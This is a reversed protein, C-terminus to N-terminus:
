KILILKQKKEIEGFENILFYIGSSYKSADWSLIQDGCSHISFLIEDIKNGNLDVVEFKKNDFLNTNSTIQFYVNSNFPNPYVNKIEIEKRISYEGINLCNQFGWYTICSFNFENCLNNNSVNVISSAPLNCLNEHLFEIQNNAINLEVMNQNSELGLPISKIQTDNIFVYKLSRLNGFSNPISDLNNSNISFTELNTLNGIFTPLEIIPNNILNIEELNVMNTISEDLFFIQNNSLDLKRLFALEQFDNTLGTILRYSLDLNILRGERWTQNFEYFPSDLNLNNFNNINALVLLDQEFFCYNSDLIQTNEDLINHYVYGDDCIDCSDLNQSEINSLSLCDPYPPCISNDIFSVYNLNEYIACIDNPLSELQNNGLNLIELFEFDSIYEIFEELNNDFINIYRLNILNSFNAPLFSLENGISEFEELSELNGFNEPLSILNNNSIRLVKLSELNGFSEPLTTIQNNYIWISKLQSLNGISSPLEQLQCTHIYFRELNELEGISEPVFRIPNSSLYLNELRSMYAISNPITDINSNYLNLYRLRGEEWNQSGIELPGYEYLNSNLDIFDQLVDIDNTNFCSNNDETLVNEPIIEIFTQWNECEQTLILSHLILLLSFYKLKNEKKM